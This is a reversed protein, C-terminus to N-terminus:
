STIFSVIRSISSSKSKSKKIKSNTQVPVNAASWKFLSNNSVDIDGQQILFDDNDVDHESTLLIQSNQSDTMSSTNVLSENNSVGLHSKGLDCNSSTTSYGDDKCENSIFSVNHEEDIDMSCSDDREADGNEMLVKLNANRTEISNKVEMNEKQSLSNDDSCKKDDDTTIDNTQTAAKAFFKSETITEENLITRKLRMINRGKTRSKSTNLLSPSTKINASQRTFPNARRMLVPSLEDEGPTLVNVESNNKTHMAESSGYM